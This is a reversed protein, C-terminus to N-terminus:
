GEALKLGQHAITLEEIAIDGSSANLQPGAIKSPIGREFIWTAVVDQEHGMVEVVGDYRTIPRVGAVINQIWRWLDQNVTGDRSYFMGRKLVIPSYTARGIRQIVGDNRGGEKIEQVDMSIDLGSCEQFGGDGLAEGAQGSDSRPGEGLRATESARLNVAFRFNRMLTDVM